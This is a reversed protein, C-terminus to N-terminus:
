QGQTYGSIHLLPRTRKVCRGYGRDGWRGVVAWTYFAGTGSRVDSRGAQRRKYCEPARRTGGRAPSSLVYVWTNVALHELHRPRHHVVEVSARRLDAHAALAVLSVLELDHFLPSARCLPRAVRAEAPARGSGASACRPRAWRAWRSTSDDQGSRQRLPRAEGCRRLSLSPWRSRAWGRRHAGLESGLQSRFPLRAALPRPGLDGSVDPVRHTIQVRGWNCMGLLPAARGRSMPCFLTRRASM